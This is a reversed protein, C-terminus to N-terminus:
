ISKLLEDFPDSKVSLVRKVLLKAKLGLPPSLLEELPNAPENALPDSGPDPPVPIDADSRAVKNAFWAVVPVLSVLLVNLKDPFLLPVVGDVNPDPVSEDDEPVGEAFGPEDGDEPDEGEPVGEVDPDVLESGLENPDKRSLEEGDPGDDPVVGDPGDDPELVGSEVKDVEPCPVEEDGAPPPVTLELKPFLLM